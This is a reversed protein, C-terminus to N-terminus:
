NQSESQRPKFFSYKYTLINLLNSAESNVTKSLCITIEYYQYFRILFFNQITKTVFFQDIIKNNNLLSYITKEWLFCETLYFDLKISLEFRKIRRQIM